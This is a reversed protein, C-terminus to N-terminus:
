REELATTWGKAASHDGEHCKVHTLNNVSGLSDWTTTNDVDGCSSIYEHNAITMLDRPVLVSCSVLSTQLMIAQGPTDGGM